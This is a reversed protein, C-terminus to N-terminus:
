REVRRLIPVVGGRGPQLDHPVDAVLDGDARTMPDGDADLRASLRIPGEFPRGQIMADAPGIEFDVPFGTPVLRRVALPPGGGPGRAIVFLVGGSPLERARVSDDLRLTGRIPAEVSGVRTPAALQTSARPSALGPVRLPRESPPPEEGLPVWPELRRDCGAGALVGLCSAVAFALTLLRASAPRDTM